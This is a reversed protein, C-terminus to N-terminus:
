TVWALFVPEMSLLLVTWAFLGAMCIVGLAIDAYSTRQPTPRCYDRVETAPLDLQYKM